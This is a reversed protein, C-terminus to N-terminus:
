VVDDVTFPYKKVVVRRAEFESEQEFDEREPSTAEKYIPTGAQGLREPQYRTKLLQMFVQVIAGDLARAESKGLHKIEQVRISPM